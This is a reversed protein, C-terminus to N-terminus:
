AVRGVALTPRGSHAHGPGGSGAAAHGGVCPGQKLARGISGDDASAAARTKGVPQRGARQSLRARRRGVQLGGPRGGGVGERTGRAPRRAWRGQRGAREGGGCVASLSGEHGRGGGQQDNVGLVVNAGGLAAQVAAGIPRGNIAGIKEAAQLATHQRRPCAEDRSRPSAGDFHDVGDHRGERWIAPVPAQVVLQRSEM